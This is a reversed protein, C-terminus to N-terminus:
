SGRAEEILSALSPRLKEPTAKCYLHRNMAVMENIHDSVNPCGRERLVYYLRARNFM